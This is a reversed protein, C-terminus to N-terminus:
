LLVFHTSLLEQARTWPGRDHLATSQLCCCGGLLSREAEVGVLLRIDAESDCDIRPAARAAIWADTTEVSVVSTSACSPVPAAANAAASPAPEALTSAAAVAVATGALVRRRLLMLLAFAFPSAFAGAEAGLFPREVRAVTSSVFSEADSDPSTAAGGWSSSPVAPSGSVGSEGGLSGGCTSSDDGLDKEGGVFNPKEAKGADNCANATSPLL